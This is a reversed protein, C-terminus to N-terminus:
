ELGLRKLGIDWPLIQVSDIRRPQPDRSLCFADAESLEEAFRKLTRIHRSDVEEASKIEVLALPKGPREILLDIEAGDKTLLHYFRFNKRHYSNLRYMELIVFHEFARGFAYTGHRLPIDLARDLARKVGTDFLYFKPSTSQQKRLSRHYAPLFFGVLTDELIEFYSRVTKSDVGIDHAIKSYNLVEGNSQAAVELFLRFPRDKRIIQEAIIEEKLYTHSYSELFLTREEDTNL